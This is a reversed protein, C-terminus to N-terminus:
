GIVTKELIDNLMEKNLEYDHSEPDTVQYSEMLFNFYLPSSKQCNAKTDEYYLCGDDLFICICGNSEIHKSIRACNGCFVRDCTLCLYCSLVACNNLCTRYLKRLDQM